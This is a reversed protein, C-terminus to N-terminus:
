SAVEKKQGRKKQWAFDLSYKGAGTLLLTFFITLYILPLEKRSFDDTAHVYFAATAMTILLPIVAVRTALGVLILVSCIFEAFVVLALTAADGIGVLDMFVIDSDGFFTLLKPYGHTLMLAASGIRLILLGADVSPLNLNTKYM